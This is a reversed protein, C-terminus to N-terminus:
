DTGQVRDARDQESEANMDEYTFNALDSAIQAKARLDALLLPDPNGGGWSLRMWEDKAQTAIDAVHKLVQETVPNALWADFDDREINM